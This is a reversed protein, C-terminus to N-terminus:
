NENKKSAQRIIRVIELVVREFITFWDGLKYIKLSMKNNKISVRLGGVYQNLSEFLMTGSGPVKMFIDGVIVEIFAEDDIITEVYKNRSGLIIDIIRKRFLLSVPVPLKGYIDRTKEELRKVESLTKTAKIAQYLEIKDPKNAYHEPIYADISLLTTIKIEEEKVKVGQRKEAM